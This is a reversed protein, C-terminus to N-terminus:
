SVRIANIKERLDAIEAANQENRVRNVARRFEQAVAAASARAVKPDSATADVLLIPSAAAAHASVTVGTPVDAETLLQGQYAPDNFFTVYGQVLVADQDPSRDNSAVILSARATYTTGTSMTAAV